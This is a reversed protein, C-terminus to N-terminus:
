DLILADPDYCNKLSAPSIRTLKARDGGDTDLLVLFANKGVEEVAVVHRGDACWTPNSLKHTGAVYDSLNRVARTKTDYIGIGAIGRRMFAFAIKTPAARSWAPETAYSFGSLVIREKKGGNASVRYLGPRGNPGSTFVVSKGDPSFVPATQVEADRCLSVANGGTAPKVYVNMVGRASLALAVRSGDPSFAGGNNTNPYAAFKSFRGSSLSVSYVDAAGSAHYTTYLLRTGAPDWYPMIAIGRHNTAQKIDRFLLDSFYIERNGSRTSSFALRTKSFIPKLNWAYNKGVAVVIEDCLEAISAESTGAVSLTGAFAKSLGSARATLSNGNKSVTIVASNRSTAQTDFAGHFGLARRVATRLQSDASEIRVPLVGQRIIAQIDADVSVDGKPNAYVGLCTAALLGACVLVIKSSFKMGM